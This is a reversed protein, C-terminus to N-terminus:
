SAIRDALYGVSLGFYTSRNWKLITRFNNYVLYAQTGAGDPQVVSAKFGPATPIANGGPTTIGLSRWEELTKITDHGILNDPFGRPLKVPRGWREGDNWGSKSLYNATSAFVDPLSTWIDRKGDNNGDVAFNHFSSPMFQNQGMAGAWSGNMDALRIHGQDLIRLAEFLEQRFFDSRRGDYALTALAPIVGFGGTNQGYNTEVGWLAVIYQPQVGYQASVKDLLARHKRYLERGKQIRANNIVRERYQAYTLRSEPQKRDLRIIRENPEVDVFAQDLLNESIGKSRAEAKFESVWSEFSQAAQASFSNMLLLASVLFALRMM